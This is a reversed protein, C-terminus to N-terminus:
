RVTRAIFIGIIMNIDQQYYERLLQQAAKFHAGHTIVDDFLIINKPHPISEAKNVEYISKYYKIEPRSSSTHASEYSMNQVLLERVDIEIKHKHLMIESLLRLIHCMRDDYLPDTKCKSPPIPVFTYKIINIPSFINALINAINEMAEIKHTYERKNIKSVDKKLNIIIDNGLGATFGQRPFYDFLYYCKDTPDLEKHQAIIADDIKLLDYSRM